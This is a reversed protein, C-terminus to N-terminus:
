LLGEVELSTKTSFYISTKM